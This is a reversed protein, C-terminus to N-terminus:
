KCKGSSFSIKNGTWSQVIGKGIFFNKEDYTHPPKKKIDSNKLFVVM